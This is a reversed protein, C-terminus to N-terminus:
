EVDTWKQRCRYVDYHYLPFGAFITTKFVSGCTQGLVGCPGTCNAPFYKIINLGALPADGETSVFEWEYEEPRCSETESIPGPLPIASCLVDSVPAGNLMCTSTRLRTRRENGYPGSCSSWPSWLGFVWTLDQGGHPDGPDDPDPDPNPTPGPDPTPDDPLPATCAQTLTSWPRTGSSCRGDEAVAGDSRQCWVSRTLTQINDVCTGETTTGWRWAFSFYDCNTAGGTCRIAQEAQNAFETRQAFNTRAANGSINIDYTGSLLEHKIKGNNALLTGVLHEIAVVGANLNSADLYFGSPLGELLDTNMAIEALVARGAATSYLSEIAEDALIAREALDTLDSWDAIQAHSLNPLQYPLDQISQVNVDTADTGPNEAVQGFAIQATALVIAISSVSTFGKRM